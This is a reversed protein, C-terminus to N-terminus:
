RAMWDAVTRVTEADLGALGHPAHSSCGGHGARGRGGGGHGGGDGDGSLRVVQARGAARFADKLKQADEPPSVRCTDAANAVILVPVTVREPHADFVTEHSGGLRSVAELLVLGAIQGLPLTAAGNVAAIAGQSTGLLFVPSSALRHAEGVLDGVVEAVMPRARSGRLNRGGFADPIVVAFGRQLWLPATRILINDAREVTGDPEIGVDGSGGPLMVVVSRALDPTLALVRQREGDSLTMDSVAPHWSPEPRLSEASVGGSSLLASLFGIAALRGHRGGGREDATLILSTWSADSTAPGFPGAFGIALRPLSLMTMM